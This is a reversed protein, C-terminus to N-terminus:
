ALSARHGDCFGEPLRLGSAHSTSPRDHLKARNHATEFRSCIVDCLKEWATLTSGVFKDGFYSSLTMLISDGLADMDGPEVMRKLKYHRHGNKESIEYISEFDLRELDHVVKDMFELLRVSFRRMNWSTHASTLRYDNPNEEDKKLFKQKIRPNLAFFDEIIRLRCNPEERFRWWTISIREIEKKTINFFLKKEPIEANKNSNERLSTSIQQM